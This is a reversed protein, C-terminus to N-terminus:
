DRDRQQQRRTLERVIMMLAVGLLNRKKRNEENTMKKAIDNAMKFLEDAPVKKLSEPTFNM